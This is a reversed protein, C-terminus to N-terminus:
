EEFFISSFIKIRLRTLVVATPKLRKKPPAIAVPLHKITMAVKLTTMTVRLAKIMMRRRRRLAMMMMMMMIMLSRRDAWRPIANEHAAAKMTERRMRITPAPLKM